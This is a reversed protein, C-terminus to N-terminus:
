PLSLRRLERELPLGEEALLLDELQLRVPEVQIRSVIDEAFAYILLSRAQERGIGRTQLYFLQQEDLQGVTAGHTCRVDDAYIELQPKSDVEADDSLLLAQNTQKADTKQAGPHVYIKGQFVGHGRESLIGKYLEYSTCAPALHEIETHNDIHQKGRALYLGNLTCSGYEGELRVDCENRVLGGGLSVIYAQLEAQQALRAYAQVIHISNPHEQQVKYYSLHAGRELILEVVGCTFCRESGGSYSEVLSARSGQGLVFLIRPFVAQPELQENAQQYIEIQVPLDLDQNPLVHVIVADEFLMTNLAAFAHQSWRATRNWYSELFDAYKQSADHWNMIRLKNASAPPVHVDVVRGNAIIVRVAEWDFQRVLQAPPAPQWATQAVAGVNTYKWDENRRLPYGLESFAAEAAQRAAAVFRPEQTPQGRLFASWQQTIKSGLGRTELM